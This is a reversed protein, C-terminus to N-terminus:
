ALEGTCMVNQNHDEANQDHNNNHIEVNSATRDTNIGAFNNDNECACTCAYDNASFSTTFTYQTEGTGGDTISSNNLSDQVAQTGAQEVNAWHRLSGNLVYGTSVTDTGDTINSVNLTSM